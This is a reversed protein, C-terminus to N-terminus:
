GQKVQFKARQAATACGRQRLTVVTNCSPYTVIFLVQFDSILRGHMHKIITRPVQVPDVCDCM